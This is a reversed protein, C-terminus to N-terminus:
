SESIYLLKQGAMLLNNQSISLVKFERVRPARSGTVPCYCVFSTKSKEQGSLCRM